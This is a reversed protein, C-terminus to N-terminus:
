SSLFASLSYFTCFHVKIRLDHCKAFHSLVTYLKINNAESFINPKEVSNKSGASKFLRFHDFTPFFHELIKVRGLVGMGEFMKGLNLVIKM